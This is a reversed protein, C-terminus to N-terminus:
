KSTEIRLGDTVSFIGAVEYSQWHDTDLREIPTVIGNASLRTGTNFEPTTSSLLNFDLVYNKGDEAKLGIACEETQPYGAKHPLCAVTGSLSGRQPEYDAQSTQAAPEKVRADGRSHAYWAGAGLLAVAAVGIAVWKATGNM